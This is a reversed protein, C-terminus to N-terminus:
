RQRRHPQHSHPLGPGCGGFIHHPLGRRVPHAPLLPRGAPVAAVDSRLSRQGSLVCGAPLHGEPQDAALATDPLNLRSFAEVLEAVGKEPIIRGVFAVLKTEPALGLRARWNIQPEAEALAALQAPDVSNYLTGKARIHFHTLWRCVAQSVGYFPAGCAKLWVAALHEYVHGAWGVPGNGMPLHGTSHEIVLFPIHRRKCCGAAYLSSPYFRAQVVCLDIHNAWVQGMLRRLTDGPKPVPFRGGILPWVPLRIVEVGDSVEHEPLGPLASTVVLVRHGHALLKQALCSTYREVGGVTPLYQASFFCITM